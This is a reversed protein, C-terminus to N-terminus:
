SKKGRSKTPRKAKSNAQKGFLRALDPFFQKETGIHSAHEFPIDTLALEMFQEPVDTRIKDLALKALVACTDGGIEEGRKKIAILVVLARAWEYYLDLVASYREAESRTDDPLRTM